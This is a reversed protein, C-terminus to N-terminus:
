GPEWSLGEDIWAKFKEIEKAKLPQGKPPMRTEPDDSTIRKILESEASKGRVVVKAKLISARTELSLSGKYKGNTHCEACRAKILPVIDHAFDVKKPAEARASAAVGAVILCALLRSWPTRIVSRM